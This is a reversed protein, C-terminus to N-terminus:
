GGAGALADRYIVQLQDVLAAQSFRALTRQRIEARDYDALRRSLSEIATTLSATDDTPVLLGDQPTVIGDPGGSRTAIVPLGQSMAEIFVIGFTEHRSALAFADAERLATRVDERSLAGLFRVHDSLGLRVSLAELEARLPGEGGIDLRVAIGNSRATALANLLWDFGKNQNLNGISVLRLTPEAPRTKPSFAEEFPPTLSNPLVSWKPAGLRTEVAEALAQSVALRFTAAQSAKRLGPVQWNQILNRSYTSSHETVGYPIGTRSSIREALVGGLLLSHAHLIDPRGHEHVYRHFLRDGSRCWRWLDFHPLRSSTFTGHSRLVTVPGEDQWVAGEYTPCLAKVGLRLSRFMPAIVGVHHGAKALSIAQERFFVGNLDEPNAPYWSPILLVHM